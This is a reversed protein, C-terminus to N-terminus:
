TVSALIRARAATVQDAFIAFSRSHQAIAEVDGIRAVLPLACSRVKKERTRKSGYFAPKLDRKPMQEAELDGTGKKDLEAAVLLWAEIMETPVTIVAPVEGLEPTEATAAALKERLQCYRCQTAAAGEAHGWHRPHRLDQGMEPNQRIDVDGDNDMAVIAAACGTNRFDRLAAPLTKLLDTCGGSAAELRRPEIPSSLPELLRELFAQLVLVDTGEVHFGVLLRLAGVGRLVGHVM